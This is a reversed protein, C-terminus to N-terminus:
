SPPGAARISACLDGVEALLTGTNFKYFTLMEAFEQQDMTGDPGALESFMNMADHQRIKMPTSKLLALFEHIELEQDNNFDNAHFLQVLAGQALHFQDFWVQLIAASASQFSVYAENGDITAPEIASALSESAGFGFHSVSAETAASLVQEKLIKIDRTGLWPGFVDWDVEPDMTAFNEEEGPSHQKKLELLYTLYFCSSRETWLPVKIMGSIKAFDYIRKNSPYNQRIAVCLKGLLLQSETKTKSKKDFYNRTAKVMNFRPRGEAENIFDSQWKFDIIGGIHRISAPMVDKMVPPMVDMLALFGSVEQVLAELVTDLVEPWTRLPHLADDLPYADGKFTWINILGYKRRRELDM